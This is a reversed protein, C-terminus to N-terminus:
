PLSVAPVALSRPKRSWEMIPKEFYTFSMYAVAATTMWALLFWIIREYIPTSDIVTGVFYASIFWIILTHYLYGGYSIRGVLAVPEWRLMQTGPKRLIAYILVACSLLNIVSYCFVERLQGYMVGSVINRFVDIGTAGLSRNILIYTLAYTIAILIAAGILAKAILRNRRLDKEFNAILCGLIFADFHAFSSAYIAFAKWGPDGGVGALAISYFYRIFPGALILAFLAYTYNKRSLLLFLLPYFIYFQEEVSLTWLHGFAPWSFESRWFEFIMQWNYTFTLLFPLDKFSEAAGILLLIVVNLLIYLVYVPVIRFFRRGMFTKYQSFVSSEQYENHIFNRSIVYGSIAFFLWVGTWGMPALGCHQAIVLSIAIARLGDIENVRSLTM